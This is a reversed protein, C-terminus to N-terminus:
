SSCLYLYLICVKRSLIVALCECAATKLEECNIFNYLMVLMKCEKMLLVDFELWESFVTVTNLATLTLHKALPSQPSPSPPCLEIQFRAAIFACHFKSIVESFVSM